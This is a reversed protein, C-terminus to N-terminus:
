EGGKYREGEESLDRLLDILDSLMGKIFRISFIISVKM